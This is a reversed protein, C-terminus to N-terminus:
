AYAKRTSSAIRTKRYFEHIPLSREISRLAEERTLKAPDDKDKPYRCVFLPYKTLQAKASKINDVGASDKDFFLYIRKPGLKDIIRVQKKSIGTGLIGGAIDIGHQHFVITDIGGEVLVLGDSQVRKRDIYCAGFLISTKISGETYLYKFNGERALSRKILFRFAGREDYAPIILREEDECWGLQWKGRTHPEIGRSDLYARAEKPLFQYKGGELSRQDKAVPDDVAFSKRTGRGAYASFSQKGLAARTHGKLMFRRADRHAKGVKERALWREEKSAKTDKATEIDKLTVKHKEYFGLIISIAHEYTGSIGCAGFCHVTPRRSNIQFHSKRTDHDPNPCQVKPLFTPLPQEINGPLTVLEGWLSLVDLDRGNYIM